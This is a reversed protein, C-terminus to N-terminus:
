NHTGSKTVLKTHQEKQNKSTGQETGLSRYTKYPYIPRIIVEKNYLRDQLTVTLSNDAPAIVPAGNLRFEFALLQAFCIDLNLAGGTARLLDNWLQADHQTQVIIDQVTEWEDGNNTINNDDVFGLMDIITSYLKWSDEYKCGHGYKNHIDFLVSVIEGWGQASATSGQGSGFAPSEDSHHYTEKSIEIGTKIAYRAVKLLEGLITTLKKPMGYSRLCLNLLHVLIRDFYATADNNFKVPPTRTVMAMETQTDDVFVPDIARRSPRCGYVGKNILYNDKCHQDL